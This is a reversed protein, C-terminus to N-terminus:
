VQYFVNGQDWYRRDFISTTNVLRKFSRDEKRYVIFRGDEEQSGKELYVMITFLGSVLDYAHSVNFKLELPQGNLDTFSIRSLITDHLIKEMSALTIKEAITRSAEAKGLITAYETENVPMIMDVEELELKYFLAIPAGFVPDSTVNTVIATNSELQTYGIGLSATPNQVSSSSATATPGVILNALLTFSYHYLFPDRPLKKNNLGYAMNVNEIYAPVEGDFHALPVGYMFMRDRVEFALPSGEAAASSTSGQEEAASSSSSSSSGEETEVSSSSSEEASSSAVEEASSSSSLTTIVSSSSSEEDAASSSSSEAAIESSSSSEEDATASSSSSEEAVASSSSSEEPAVSSSSSVIEEEEEGTDSSSSYSGVEYQDAGIDWSAVETRDGGDVDLVFGESTLDAGAGIADSGPILHLDEAGRTTSVFQTTPNVSTISGSGPATNDESINQVATISTTNEYDLEYGDELHTVNTVINNKVVNTVVDKTRIGGAIWEQSVIDTITNNYIRVNDCAACSIGEGVNNSVNDIRFIFNNAAVYDADASRLFLGNVNGGSSQVNDYIMNNLFQIEDDSTHTGQSEVGRTANTLEMWQVTLGVANNQTVCNSGSANIRAGTNRTGDHRHGEPARIITKELGVTDGGNIVVGAYDSGLDYVEAIAINGSDYIDVNDLDAEWAVLTTYDGTGDSKITKIVINGTSSSSTAEEEEESASSSSGAEAGLGYQDAGIDWSAEGTRDGGDIDTTYGLGTLDVGEAIVEAGAKLHLDESGETTSVYIDAPTVNDISNSGAFTTDDGANYDEDATNYTVDYCETTAGNTINTVLNNKIVDGADNNVNQIGVGDGGGSGDMDNMTNNIFTVSNVGTLTVFGKIAHSGDQRFRFFMNNAFIVTGKRARWALGPNSDSRTGGYILCNLVEVTTSATDQGDSGNEGGFDRLELWEIKTDVDTNVYHDSNSDCIVGTGPTGDHHSSDDAKLTISNLPIGEGAAGGILARDYVSGLDYVVGVADDGNSYVGGNDLDSEWAAITTYDGSGDSKITKTVTGM